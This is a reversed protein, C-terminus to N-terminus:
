AGIEREDLLARVLRRLEALKFPKTIYRSRTEEFFRRTAPNVVDGTSFLVRGALAPSRRLIEDHLDRGSMNPMKVDTIVLDFSGGELRRLAEQGDRAVEVSYGETELAQRMVAALLEEDDVVLIRGAGGPVPEDGASADRRRVDRQPAAAAAEEVLSAPPTAEAEQAGAAPLTVSFCAGGGPLNLAEISGGHDRVIGYALSLGLGTGEGVGKTTFFPDFLRPLHEPAIGPGSDSVDVRVGAAERRVSIRVRRVGRVAEMAQCANHLINLFVQRMQHADGVVPPLDEQAELEVSVGESRMGYTVLDVAGRLAAGVDLRRREAPQRRAFTLLNRVIKQCREAESDVVELMRRAEASAETELLLQAYGIVTALPNNLEHAVGSLMEGLSSLKETQALQQEIRKQETVDEVVLLVTPEELEAGRVPGLSLRLARGREEAERGRLRQRGSAAEALLPLLDLGGLVRLPVGEPLGLELLLARAAPNALRVGGRTDLLLVGAPMSDIVAQFKGTEAARSTDLRELTLSAQNAVGLLLRRNEESALTPLSSALLLLGAAAGARHLPAVLHFGPSSSAFPEDQARFRLGREVTLAPRRTWPVGVEHAVAELQAEIGGVDVPTELRVLGSAGGQALWVCAALDFDLSRGVIDLLRRFVELPDLAYALGQAVEQLLTLHLGADARAPPNLGLLWGGGAVGPLAAVRAELEGLHTRVRRPQPAAAGRQPAGLPPDAELWDSARDGAAPSRGAVPDVMLTRFASNLGVLTGGADVIAAPEQLLDIWASSPSRSAPRGPRAPGGGSKKAM